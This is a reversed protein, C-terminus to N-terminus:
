RLSPVHFSALVASLDDQTRASRLYPPDPQGPYKGARLDRVFAAVVAPAPLVDEGLYSLIIFDEGSSTEIVAAWGQWEDWVLAFDRDPYAALRQDIAVYGSVPVDVLCCCGEPGTGLAEAVTEIYRRLGKGPLADVTLDFM